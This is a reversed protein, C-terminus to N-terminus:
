REEENKFAIHLSQGHTLGFKIDSDIDKKKIILDELNETLTLKENAGAFKM